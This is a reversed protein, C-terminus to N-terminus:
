TARRPRRSMRPKTGAILDSMIARKVPAQMLEAPFAAKKGKGKPKAAWATLVRDVKSKSATAPAKAKRAAKPLKKTNVITGILTLVEAHELLLGQDSAQKLEYRNGPRCYAHWASWM